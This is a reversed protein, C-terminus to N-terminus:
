VGHKANAVKLARDVKVGVHHAHFQEFRRLVGLVFVRQGKYAIAGVWVM